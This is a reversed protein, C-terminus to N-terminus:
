FPLPDEAEDRHLEFHQEITEMKQKEKPSKMAQQAEIIQEAQQGLVEIELDTMTEDEDRLKLYHFFILGETLFSTRRASPSDKWRDLHPYKGHNFQMYKDHGLKCPRHLVLVFDSTQWVMDSGYLDARRPSLHRVDTRDEINRNLQMLPFFTTHRFKPHLKMKNLIGMLRNIARYMDDGEVMGIHDITIWVRKTEQHEDIFAHIEREFEEPTVPVSFYYINPSQEREVVRQILQNEEESKQKYYIDEISLPLEKRVARVMLSRFLMEWNCRLLVHEGADPNLEPNLFDEELQQIFYSKGMGSIGAITFISGPLIGGYTNVNLHPYRTKVPHIEGREYQRLEEFTEPIIDTSCQIHKISM